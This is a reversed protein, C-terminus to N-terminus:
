KEKDWPTPEEYLWYKFVDDEPSPEKPEEEQKVPEPMPMVDPERHVRLPNIERRTLIYDGAGFNWNYVEILEAVDERITEDELHVLDGDGIDDPMDLARAAEKLWGGMATLRRRRLARTYDVLIEVAQDDTLEPDIYDEDKVAYKSAEAAASASADKAGRSKTTRIDVVPKYDVRLAKQWRKVWEAQTIYLDSSRWFYGPEVALIVHLHPHYGRDLEFSGRTIEIARFWGGVSRQFQRQHCLRDWAKTLLALADGLEPGSVNEITLTLFIYKAGHQQEVIELVRSLRYASKKARRAICLPCMRLQCFNAAKLHKEGSEANVGYELWTACTRARTAYDDMEALEYLEALRRTKMKRERWAFREDQLIEEAQLVVEQGDVVFSIYDM